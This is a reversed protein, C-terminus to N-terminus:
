AITHGPDSLVQPGDQALALGPSLAAVGLGIALASGAILRRLSALPKGGRSLPGRRSYASANSGDPAASPDRGPSFTGVPARQPFVSDSSGDLAALPDRGPPFTGVPGRQPFISDSSGDSASPSKAFTMLLLEGQTFEALVVDDNM